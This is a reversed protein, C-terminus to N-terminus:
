HGIFRGFVAARRSARGTRREEEDAGTMVRLGANVGLWRLPLVHDIQRKRESRPWVRWPGLGM